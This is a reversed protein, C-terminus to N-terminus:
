KRRKLFGLVGIGLELLVLTSGTDPVGTGKGAKYLKLNSL